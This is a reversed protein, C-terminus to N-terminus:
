GVCGVHGCDGAPYRPDASGPQLFLIPQASQTHGSGGIISQGDPGHVNIHQIHVVAQPAARAPPRPNDVADLGQPTISVRPYLTGAPHNHVKLNGVEVLYLVEQGVTDVARGFAQAIDEVDWCRYANGPQM